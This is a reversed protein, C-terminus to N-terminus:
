FPANKNVGTETNSATTDNGIANDKDFEGHTSRAVVQHPGNLGNPRPERRGATLATNMAGAVGLLTADMPITSVTIDGTAPLKSNSEILKGLAHATGFYGIVRGSAAWRAEFVQQKKSGYKARKKTSKVM